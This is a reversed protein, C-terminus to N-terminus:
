TTALVQDVYAFLEGFAAQQQDKTVTEPVSTPDWAQLERGWYVAIPNHPAEPDSLDFNWAEFDGAEAEDYLHASFLDSAHQRMADLYEARHTEPVQGAVVKLDERFPRLLNLDRRWAQFLFQYALWTQPTDIAFLLSTAGFRTILSAALDDIGARSDLLVWTPREKAELEDLLRAIRDAFDGKGPPSAYVRSLKSVYSEPHAAGAAPVVRIEGATGAALPSTEVLDLLLADDAQGVDDEVLWDVIGFKPRTEAPLLSATVGPSELDLDLVLVRDGRDALHRALAVLATSRGVGGKVGFFTIRTAASSRRPLPARIWDSGTVWRELLRVGRALTQLEKAHLVAEPAVMEEARLIVGRPGASWVGLQQHLREALADENTPNGTLVFSIRGLLNRVIIVDGGLAAANEEAFRLALELADDFRVTASSTM